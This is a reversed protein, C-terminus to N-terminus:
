NLKFNYYKNKMRNKISIESCYTATATIYSINKERKFMFKKLMNQPWLFM